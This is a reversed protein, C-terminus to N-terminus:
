PGPAYDKFRRAEEQSGSVALGPYDLVIRGLAFLLVATDDGSIQITEKAPGPGPQWSVGDYRLDLRITDGVLLFAIRAAPRETAATALLPLSAGLVTATAQVVDPALPLDEGLAAALDNAHIGAEFAWVNVALPGPVPGYYMPCIASGLSDPTHRDMEALLQQHNHRIAALIAGRDPGPTSADAAEPIGQRARRMAEAELRQGYAIHRALNRVSWAPLRTPREWDEGAARELRALDAAIERRVVERCTTLDLM